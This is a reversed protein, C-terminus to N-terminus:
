KLQTSFYKLNAEMETEFRIRGIVELKNKIEPREIMRWISPVSQKHMVGIKRYVQVSGNAKAIFVKKLRRTNGRTIQVKLLARKSVAIGKQQQPTKEGRVFHIMSVPENSVRIVSYIDSLTKKPSYKANSILINPKIGPPKLGGSGKSSGTAPLNYRQRILKTAEKRVTVAARNVSRATAKKLVKENWGQLIRGINGANTSIKLKM